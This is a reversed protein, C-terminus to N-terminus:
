AGAPGPAHDDGGHDVLLIRADAGIGEDLLPRRIRGDHGFWRIQLDADAVLSEGPELNLRAAAGRVSAPRGVADVGDDVHAADEGAEVGEVARKPGARWM